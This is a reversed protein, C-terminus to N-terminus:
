KLNSDGLKFEIACKLLIKTKEYIVDKEAQSCLKYESKISTFIDDFDESSVKMDKTLEEPSSNLFFEENRAIIKENYSILKNHSLRLLEHSSIGMVLNARKLLRAAQAKKIDSGSGNAKDALVKLLFSITDNFETVVQKIPRLQDM